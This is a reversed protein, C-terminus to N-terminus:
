VEQMAQIVPRCWWVRSMPQSPTLSVNQKCQAQVAIRRIEMEWTAPIVPICRWVQSM